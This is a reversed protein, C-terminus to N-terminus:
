ELPAAETHLLLASGNVASLQSIAEKKEHRDLMQLSAIAKM